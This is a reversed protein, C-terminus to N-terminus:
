NVTISVAKSPIGNTVVQLSSAGTEIKAPVDFNTSVIAKGTAVAMTSHDHTRAYVVHGSAINKIRVLPYNTAIQNEDGFAGAQSLGNFQTGSIKYTSGPKV